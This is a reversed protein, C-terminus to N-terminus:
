TFEELYHEKWNINCTAISGPWRMIFTSDSPSFKETPSFCSIQKALASRLLYQVMKMIICWKGQMRDEKRNPDGDMSMSFIVDLWVYMTCYVRLFLIRRRSSAVADTSTSVSWAIWLVIFTQTLCLYSRKTDVNVLDGIVILLTNIWVFSFHLAKYQVSIFYWNGVRCPPQFFLYKRRNGWIKGWSANAPQVTSVMAWLNTQIFLWIDVIMPKLLLIILFLWIIYLCEGRWWQLFTPTCVAYQLAYEM